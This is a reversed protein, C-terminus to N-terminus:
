FTKMGFERMCLLVTKLRIRKMSNNKCFERNKKKFESILSRDQLRYRHLRLKYAAWLVPTCVRPYLVKKIAYLNSAGLINIYDQNQGQWKNVEPLHDIYISPDYVNYFGRDRAQMSLSIEENGYMIDMFLPSEFAAKRVFVSGGHFTYATTLGDIKETKAQAVGRDGFVHDVIYTTLTAVKPNRDLYEITKMFFEQASAEAIQADDDLFYVYKGQALDYCKNRGGGVGKNVPLKEYVLDYLVTQRMQQVIQQTNDTSANDVIVFQTKPPLNSRVCSEVANKLQKARNMTIIAITLDYKYNENVGM